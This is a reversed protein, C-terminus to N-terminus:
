QIPGEILEAGVDKWDFSVFQGHSLITPWVHHCAQHDSPSLNLKEGLGLDFEGMAELAQVIAERTPAGSIRELARDLIRAAIYGELSGFGPRESPASVKLDAQYERVIPLSVDEPHPVVQTVIVHAPLDGLESALSHSGVFSVNLFLPTIGAEQALRIFKACPKYAGVMIIARPEHEAYLLTALANEVALTNREYTVHLVDSEDKLGHRRLAAVGGAFGSDGYGDRQTFFAIDQIKLGAGDILADIMSGTEEAYSARYNFVYRDPPNKRLVGAGSFAAFFLTKREEAIPIAAIATPTGVNGIVALVNDRELLQRMNPATRAPEYGDDLSLLHLLQGHVGGGANAHGLGVVVGTQMDQGLNAAPGSLATSMGLQIQRSDVDAARTTDGAIARGQLACPLLSLLLFARIRRM